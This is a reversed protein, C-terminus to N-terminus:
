YTLPIWSERIITLRVIERKRERRGQGEEEKGGERRVSSYTVHWVHREGSM